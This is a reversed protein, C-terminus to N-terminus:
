VNNASCYQSLSLALIKFYIRTTVLYQKLPFLSSCLFKLTCTYRARKEMQVGRKSTSFGRVPSSDTSRPIVPSREHIEYGSENYYAKYFGNPLGEPITFSTALATLGLLLLTKALMKSVSPFTQSQPFPHSQSTILPNSSILYPPFDTQKSFYTSKLCSKCLNLYRLSFKKSARGGGGRYSSDFRSNM